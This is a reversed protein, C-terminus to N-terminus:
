GRRPGNKTWMKEETEASTVVEPLFSGEQRRRKAKIVGHRNGREEVCVRM